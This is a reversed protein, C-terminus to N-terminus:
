SYDTLRRILGDQFEFSSRGTLRLTEGAKPGDPLDIALVGEYDIDINATDDLIEYNTVTQCRSMFTKKAQEAAARFEAIGTTSMTIQGASINQFVIDPHMNALMGDIDFVNYTSIYHDIIAKIKEHQM